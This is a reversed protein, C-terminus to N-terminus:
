KLPKKYFVNQPVKFEHIPSSTTKNKSTVFLNNILNSINAKCELSYQLYGSLWFGITHRQVESPPQGSPCVQLFHTEM